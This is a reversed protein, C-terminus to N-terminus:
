ADLATNAKNRKIENENKKGHKPRGQLNFIEYYFGNSSTTSRYHEQVAKNSGSSTSRSNNNNATKNREDPNKQKM